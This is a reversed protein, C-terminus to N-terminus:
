TSCICDSWAAMVSMAIAINVKVDCSGDSQPVVLGFPLRIGKLLVSAVVIPHM